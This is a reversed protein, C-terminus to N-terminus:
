APTTGRRALRHGLDGHGPLIGGRSMTQRHAASGVRAAVAALGAMLVLALQLGTFPLTEPSAESTASAPDDAIHTDTQSVNAESGSAGNDTAAHAQVGAGSKARKGSAAHASATGASGGSGQSASAAAGRTPTAAPASAAPAPASAAPAPAPAAPAPQPAPAPLRVPPAARVVDHAAQNVGGVVQDVGPVQGLAVVPVALLVAGATVGAFAARSRLNFM